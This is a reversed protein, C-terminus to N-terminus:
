LYYSLPHYIATLTYPRVSESVYLEAYDGDGIKYIAGTIKGCPLFPFTECIDIIHQSEVTLEYGHSWQYEKQNLEDAPINNNWKQCLEDNQYQKVYERIDM